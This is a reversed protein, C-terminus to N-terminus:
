NGPYTGLSLARQAKARGAPDDKFAANVVKNFRTLETAIKQGDYYARARASASPTVLPIHWSNLAWELPTMSDHYAALAKRRMARPTLLRDPDARSLPNANIRFEPLVVVPGDVQPAPLTGPSLDDREQTPPPPTFAPADALILARLRPSLEAHAPAWILVLLIAWCGRRSSSLSLM